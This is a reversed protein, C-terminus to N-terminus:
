QIGHLMCIHCRTVIFREFKRELLVILYNYTEYVGYLKLQHARLSRIREFNFDSDICRKSKSLYRELGDDTSPSM